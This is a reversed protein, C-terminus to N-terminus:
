IMKWNELLYFKIPFLIEAHDGTLGTWRYDTYSIIFQTFASNKNSREKFVVNCFISISKWPFEPCFLQIVFCSQPLLLYCLILNFFLLCNLVNSVYQLVAHQLFPICITRVINSPHRSVRLSAAASLLWEKRKLSLPVNRFQLRVTPYQNLLSGQVGCLGCRESAM